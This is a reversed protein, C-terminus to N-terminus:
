STSSTPAAPSSSTAVMVGTEARRRSRGLRQRPDGHEGVAIRDLTSSVVLKQTANMKDRMPNDAFSTPWYAAWIQYTTRGLLFTDVKDYVGGIFQQQRQRIAVCPGARSAM